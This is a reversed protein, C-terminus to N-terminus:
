TYGYLHGMGCLRHNDIPNGGHLGREINFNGMRSRPYIPSICIPDNASEQLFILAIDM